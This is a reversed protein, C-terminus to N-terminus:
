LWQRSTKEISNCLDFEGFEKELDSNVIVNNYTESVTGRQTANIIIWMIETLNVIVFRVFLFVSVLKWLTESSEKYGAIIILIRFQM